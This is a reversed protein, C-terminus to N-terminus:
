SLSACTSSRDVGCLTHSATDHLLPCSPFLSHCVDCTRCMGGLNPPKDVLTAVLILDQYARRGSRASAVGEGGDGGDGGDGEACCPAPKTQVTDDVHVAAPLDWADLPAGNAGCAAENQARAAALGPALADPLLAVPPHPLPAPPAPAPHCAAAHAALGVPVVDVLPYNHFLLPIDHWLMQLTCPLYTGLSLATLVTQLTRGVDDFPQLMSSIGAAVRAYGAPVRQARVLASFVGQAALRVALPGSILPVAAPVLRAALAEAAPGPACNAAVTGLVVLAAHRLATRSNNSGGKGKSTGKNGNAGDDGDDDSLADWLAEPSMGVDEDDGAGNKTGDGNHGPLLIEPRACALRALVLLVFFRTAFHSEAALFRVALRAAAVADDAVAHPALAALLQALRLQARHPASYLPMRRPPVLLVSPAAALARAFCHAALAPQARVRAALVLRAYHERTARARAVVAARPFGLRSPEAHDDDFVASFALGTDGRSRVPGFCLVALVAGDTHACLWPAGCGAVLADALSNAACASREGVRLVAAVLADQVAGYAPRETLRPQLVLACAAAVLADSDGASGASASSSSGTRALAATQVAALAPPSPRPLTSHALAHAAAALLRAAAAPAACREVLAAVHEWPADAVTDTDTDTTTATTAHDLLVAVADVAADFVTAWRAHHTHPLVLSAPSAHAVLALLAAPPPLPPLPQQADTTEGAVAACNALACYSAWSLAADDTTAAACLQAAQAAVCTRLSQDAAADLAAACAAGAALAHPCHAPGAELTRCARPLVATAVAAVLAHVLQESSNTSNKGDECRGLVAHLRATAAVLRAARAGPVRAVAAILAAAAGADPQALVLAAALALREDDGDDGEEEDDGDSEEEQVCSLVYHAVPAADRAVLAALAAIGAPTRRLAPGLARAVALLQPLAVTDAGRLLCPALAALRERAAARLVPHQADACRQAFAALAAVGAADLVLPPQQPDPQPEAALTALCRLHTLLAASGLPAAALRRLYWTAVRAPPCCALFSRVFALVLPYARARLDGRDLLRDTLAAFAVGELFDARARLLPGVGAAGARLFAHLVCRRTPAHFHTLARRFLLAVWPARTDDPARLSLLQLKAWAPRVLEASHTQLAEWVVVFVAWFDADAADRALVGARMLQLGCAVAYSHAREDGEADQQQQQEQKQRHGKNEEEKDGNEDDGDGVPTDESSGAFAEQLCQWFWPAARLDVPAGFCHARLLVAAALLTAGDPRPPALLAADLVAAADVGRVGLVPRLVDRVAARKTAGDVEGSRLLAAVAGVVPELVVASAVDSGSDTDAGTGLAACLAACVAGAVRLRRDREAASGLPAGAALVRLPAAVTAEAFAACCTSPACPAAGALAHAALMRAAALVLAAAAAPTWLAPATPAHALAAAAADLTAADGTAPCACFVAACAIFRVADPAAHALTAVAAASPPARLAAVAATAARVCLDLVLRPSVGSGCGDALVARLTPEVLAVVRVVEEEQEQEQERLDTM